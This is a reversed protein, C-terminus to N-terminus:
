LGSHLAWVVHWSLGMPSLTTSVCESGSRRWFASAGEFSLGACGHEYCAGRCQPSYSQQLMDALGEASYLLQLIMHSNTSWSLRGADFRQETRNMNCVPVFTRISCRLWPLHMQKAAPGVRGDDQHGLMRRPIGIVAICSELM